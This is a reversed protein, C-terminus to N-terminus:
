IEEKRFILLYDIMKLWYDNTKPGLVKLKESEIKLQRILPAIKMFNPRAGTVLIKM